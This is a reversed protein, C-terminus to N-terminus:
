SKITIENLKRSDLAIKVSKDKKVTIVAPSVFCNEDLNNAKEIHGQKMLKTIEKEVSQQLRIPIPRGKQQILRADEKLQIEVELGKVTYNEHFLKKFKRKLTTFDPYEVIRNIQPDTELTIGLKKMWDLGLLPNTKKTTILMELDNRKGNIEITATTKGEFKIRNENVDRYETKLPKM